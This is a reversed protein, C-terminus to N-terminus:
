LTMLVDSLITEYHHLDRDGVSTLRNNMETLIDNM